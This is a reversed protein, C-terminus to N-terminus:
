WDGLETKIPELHSLLVLVGAKDSDEGNSHASLQLTILSM